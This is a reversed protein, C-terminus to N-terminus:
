EPPAEGEAPSGTRAKAQAHATASCPGGAQEIRKHASQRQHENGARADASASSEAICGAGLGSSSVSASARASASATTGGSTAYSQKPMEGAVAPHVGLVPGSVHCFLGLGSWGGMALLSPLRSETRM